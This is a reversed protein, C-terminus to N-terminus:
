EPPRHRNLAAGTAGIFSRAIEWEARFLHLVREWAEVDHPDALCPAEVLSAYIALARASQRDMSFEDATSRARQQLVAIAEGSLSAISLLAEAFAGPTPDFLLRGNRGDSVVERVGSADVAVVPVGAAMAETLVMGQTESTSAFAFLDMAHYADVQEQPGLIGLRYTRNIVGHSQLIEEIAPVSPGEGILLFRIASNAQMSIAVARALFELNKEPALRGLHGIVFADQPIGLRRRFAAGDGRAYHGTDVGTPVVAIQTHVGRQELISAISQSPAFVQDAMNAYRTGMEIAFRKIALSDVPVYHTYQEILTHHTYVLPCERYRAIRLATAGLLYPHHAHLLHPEFGDLVDGLLGSVPLVVSFDSGNFHQIAPIRVVDTESEPMGSFEPAVVLVRHGLRRYAASFAAVSRAVGGIHPTFTNTLMVINV